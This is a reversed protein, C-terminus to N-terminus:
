RAFTLLKGSYQRMHRTLSKQRQIWIEEKHLSIGLCKRESLTVRYGDEKTNGAPVICMIVTVSININNTFM